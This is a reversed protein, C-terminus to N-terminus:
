RLDVVESHPYKSPNLTFQAQPLTTKLAKLGQIVVEIKGGDKAIVKLREPTADSLRYTINIEKINTKNKPTYVLTQRGGQNSLSRIDFGKARSRLFHLPNIQLLEEESPTSYTLTEEANNHHSLTKGDFVAFIDGYELRFYPGQVLLKGSIKSELNGKHNYYSSIFSAESSAPTYIKREARAMLDSASEKNQAFMTTLQLSLVIGLSIIKKLM